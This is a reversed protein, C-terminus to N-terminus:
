FGRWKLRFGAAGNAVIREFEYDYSARWEVATIDLSGDFDGFLYAGQIELYLAPVFPGLTQMEAELTLRAGPGHHVLSDHAKHLILVNGNSSGLDVDEDFIGRVTLAQGVYDISPRVVFDWGDLPRRFELGIGAYWRWHFRADVFAVPDRVRPSSEAAEASSITARGDIPAFLGSDFVLRPAGPIAELTPGALLASAHLAGKILDRESGGGFPRYAPGIIPPRGGDSRLTTNEAQVTASAGHGIGAIGIAIAFRGTRDSERPPPATLSDAHVGSTALLLCNVLAIAAVWRRRRSYKGSRPHRHFLM